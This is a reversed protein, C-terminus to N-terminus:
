ASSSGPKTTRLVPSDLLAVRSSSSRRRGQTSQCPVPWHPGICTSLRPWSAPMSTAPRPVSAISPRRGTGTSRELRPAVQEEGAAAALWASLALEPMGMAVLARAKMILGSTEAMRELLSRPYRRVKTKPM